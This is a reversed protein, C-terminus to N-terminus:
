TLRVFKWLDAQVWAVEIRSKRAVLRKKTRRVDVRIVRPSDAATEGGKTNWGPDDDTDDLMGIVINKNKTIKLVTALKVDAADGKVTAPSEAAPAVAAAEKKDLGFKSLVLAEAQASLMVSGTKEHVGWDEGQRLYVRRIERLMKVNVGIREALDVEKCEFSAM